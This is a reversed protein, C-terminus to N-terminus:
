GAGRAGQPGGGRADARRSRRSRPAQRRVDPPASLCVGRITGRGYGLVHPSGRGVRAHLRSITSRGRRATTGSAARRSTRARRALRVHGRGARAHAPDPRHASSCRCRIPSGPRTSGARSPRQLRAQRAPGVGGRARGAHAQDARVRDRRKYESKLYELDDTVLKQAYMGGSSVWISRERRCCAEDAPAPRARPDRARARPGRRDRDARAADRGRQPRDRAATGDWAAAFARVDQLVSVDLQHVAFPLEADGRVAVHVTAGLRALGDAIARGLGAKAGTVLVVKGDLRPLPALRAPARRLRRQQLGAARSRPRHGPGEDGDVRHVGIHDDHATPQGPQHRRGLQGLGALAHDESSCSGSADSPPWANQDSPPSNM